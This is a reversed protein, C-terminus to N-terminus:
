DFLKLSTKMEELLAVKRLSSEIAMTYSEDM